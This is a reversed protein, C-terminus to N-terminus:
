ANAQELLRQKAAPINAAGEGKWTDADHDEEGADQSLTNLAVHDWKHKVFFREADTDYCLDWWDETQNLTGKIRKAIEESLITM